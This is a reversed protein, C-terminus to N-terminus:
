LIENVQNRACKGTDCSTVVTIRGWVTEAWPRLVESESDSTVLRLLHGPWDTVGERDGGRLITQSPSSAAQLLKAIALNSMPSQLM